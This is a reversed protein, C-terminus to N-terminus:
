GPELLRICGLTGGYYVGSQHRTHWGEAAEDGLGGAGSRSLYCDIDPARGHSGGRAADHFESLTQAAGACGAECFAPSVPAGCFCQRGRKCLIVGRCRVIIVHGSEMWIVAKGGSVIGSGVGRGEKQCEM